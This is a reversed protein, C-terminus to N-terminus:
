SPQGGMARRALLAAVGAACAFLATVAIFGDRPSTAAIALYGTGFTAVGLVGSLQATTPLLGSLDAAREPPVHSTLHGMMATFATGLGLGGLGLLVMLWWGPLRDLLLSVCIATHAAALVLPGALGAVRPTGDHTRPLRRVLPGAVGFAAVWSVLALGSYLASHGLGRQLYLALVFLMAFYTSLAAGYSLLGWGVAPRTLLRLDVLPRGGGNAVRREVRVFLVLGVVSGALCADGWVPWGLDRGLVLPVVALLVSASLLAVGPLDLGDGPAADRATVPVAYAALALLTIGLPVNVLFVPRWGLGAVDLTVLVGGLVQGVVAGSSLAVAYWGFARTRAEGEFLRQIGTLVQPVMLAAAAGQCIRALILASPTPAVGCLLSAATFGALGVLYLRRYGHLLGLRAGTILLVAYSLAFGSVVLQLQSGSAGLDAHIAPAAVNAVATDVNAMFQGAVLALLALSARPSGPRAAPDTRPSTTPLAM